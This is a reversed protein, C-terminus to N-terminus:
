QHPLLSKPPPGAFFARGVIFDIRDARRRSIVRTAKRSGDLLLVPEDLPMDAVRYTLPKATSGRQSIEFTSEVSNYPHKYLSIHYSDCDTSAGTPDSGGQLRFNFNCALPTGDPGKEEVQGASLRAVSSSGSLCVVVLVATSLEVILSTAHVAFPKRPMAKETFDPHFYGIL